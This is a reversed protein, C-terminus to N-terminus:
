RELPPFGRRALGGMAGAALQTELGTLVAFCALAKHRDIAGARIAAVLDDRGAALTEPRRGLAGAIADLELRGADPGISGKAQLYKVVKSLDKTKGIVVRDTSRPVITDRLEALVHEYLADSDSSGQAVPVEPLAVGSAEAIASVLLRRNLTRSVLSAGPEGSVNRHRIICVRFSVLARHYRLRALDVPAAACRDYEDLCDPLSPVPEMVSRMSLWALDEMPDGLHALEWDLLTTLHGNEFLFNGPGADGHILSPAAPVEPLNAALWDHGFEILADPRDTERYMAWWLALEARVAETISAPVELGQIALRRVDQRHLEALAAAFELAITAKAGADKLHRFEAQGPVRETLMAQRTPHVAILRPIPVETPQLARYIEAERRTTFPEVGTAEFAQFRLFLPVERGDPQQVDIAWGQCRNGGAVRVARTVMGPCAEAAWARIEAETFESSM